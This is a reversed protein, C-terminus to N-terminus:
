NPNYLINAKNVLTKYLRKYRKYYEITEKDEDRSLTNVFIEFKKNTDHEPQYIANWSEKSIFNIFHEFNNQCHINRYYYVIKKM